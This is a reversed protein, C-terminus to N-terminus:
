VGLRNLRELVSEFDSPVRMSEGVTLNVRQDPSPLQFIGSDETLDALLTVGQPSSGLLLTRGRVKVLHATAIGLPVTGVEELDAMNSVPKSKKNFKAAYKPVLWRILIVVIALALLLQFLSQFGIGGSASQMPPIPDDRLGELGIDELQSLFKV